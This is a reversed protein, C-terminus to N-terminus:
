AGYRRIRPYLTGVADTGSLGYGPEVETGRRTSWGAAPSSRASTASRRSTSPPLGLRHAEDVVARVETLTFQCARIDTHPTMVGGSTMIKVLDAGHEARERVARRLGDVGSAEGGM